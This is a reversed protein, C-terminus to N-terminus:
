FINVEGLHCCKRICQENQCKIEETIQCYISVTQNAIETRDICFEEHFSLDERIIMQSDQLLFEPETEYHNLAIRTELGDPCDPFYYGSVITNQINGDLDPYFLPIEIGEFQGQVCKNEKLSYHGNECCKKSAKANQCYFILTVFLFFKSKKM